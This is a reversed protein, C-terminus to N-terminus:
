RPAPVSHLTVIEDVVRKHLGTTVYREGHKLAGTVFAHEGRTYLIDVDRREIRYREQAEPILVYLNWLGRLGDTLSTLPIWFGPQQITKEYYLYALEGNLAPADSPLTFRVAVTRTVPNVEASIGAIQATYRQQNVSLPLSQGAQLTQAINVPVGIIAQPNGQEVLTFLPSGLAVVEGLNNNRIAIIGDFPAVLTSKSIRLKNAEIAAILRQRGAQLSNLQGKLEDLQQESAFGQQKLLLSRELTNKALQLDASNQALNAEFERKEAELLATDLRALVQGAAVNDGSDVTLQKIKGALEFGIGTTNGARVTGTFQQEFQYSPALELLATAVKPAAQVITPVESPQQCASSTVALVLILLVTTSTTASFRQM